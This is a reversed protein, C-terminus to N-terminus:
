KARRQRRKRPKEPNLSFQNRAEKTKQIQGKRVMRWLKNQLFRRKQVVQFKRFLGILLQDLDASGGHAELVAIIQRELPDGHTGSLEKLLEPPLDSIDAADLLPRASSQQRVFEELMAAHRRWRAYRGREMPSIGPQEESERLDAALETVLVVANKSGQQKGM